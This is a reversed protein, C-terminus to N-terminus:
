LYKGWNNDNISLNELIGKHLRHVWRLEFNMSGAIEKWKQGLLYRRRLIEHDRPNTIQNITKMVESRIEACTNIQAQLEQQAQVLREVARPLSQGDSPGGPMGTLMPTVRTAESRLQELERELERQLRRNDQYRRLWAIKAKYDM